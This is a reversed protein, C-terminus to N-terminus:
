KPLRPEAKNKAKLLFFTYLKVSSAEKMEKWTPIQDIYESILLNSIFLYKLKWFYCFCALFTCTEFAVELILLSNVESSIWWLLLKFLSTCFCFLGLYLFKLYFNCVSNNGLNMTIGRKLFCWTKRFKWYFHAILFKLPIFKM